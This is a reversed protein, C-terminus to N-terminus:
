AAPKLSASGGFLPLSTSPKLAYAGDGLLAQAVSLVILYLPYEWGGGSASFVWGNGAHVWAAGALVPLLGLAVWRSQVGLVLLIGGILEAFFTAYALFAPLGLSEFYQATGALTFTMLKLILSHAIYMVGLSVRLLATGHAISSSTTNSM